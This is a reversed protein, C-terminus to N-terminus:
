DIFLPVELDLELQTEMKQFLCKLTPSGALGFLGDGVGGLDYLNCVNM